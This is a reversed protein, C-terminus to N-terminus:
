IPPPRTSDITRRLPLLDRRVYVEIPGTPDGNDGILAYDARAAMIKPDSWAWDHFRTGLKGVLIADPRNTVIDNVLRDRDADIFPTMRAITAPEGRSHDIIEWACVTIWLSAVSQAWEGGVNRVLPHGFDFRESIALLSPHPGVEALLAELRRDHGHGGFIGCAAGFAAMFLAAPSIALWRGIAVNGPEPYFRAEIWPWALAIIAVLPIPNRRLLIVYLAVAVTMALLALTRGLSEKPSQLVHAGLLASFFVFPFAQYEFAKRPRSVRPFRRLAALALATPM